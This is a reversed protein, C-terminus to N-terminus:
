KQTVKEPEALLQKAIQEYLPCQQMYYPYDKDKRSRNCSTNHIQNALINDRLNQCSQYEEIFGELDFHSIFGVRLHIWRYAELSQCTIDRCAALINKVIRSVKEPELPHLM